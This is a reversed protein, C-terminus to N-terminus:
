YGGLGVIFGVGLEVLWFGIRFGFFVSSLTEFLGEERRLM